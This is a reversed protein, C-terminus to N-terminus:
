IDVEELDKAVTINQYIPRALDAIKKVETHDYRSSFHTAILHDTGAESAVRAADEM